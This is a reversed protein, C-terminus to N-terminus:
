GVLQEVHARVQARSMPQTSLTRHMILGEILADVGRASDPALYRHLVERSAAMWDETISRLAPERLAALYLEYTIVWDRTDAGSNGDVLETIADVVEDRSTIGDFHRGYREAMVAAHRRFAHELIDRLGSFYYTLSGLPVDAAHAIVRHSTGAVGHRAIVDLTADIIRDKRDPDHRRSRRVPVSADADAGRAATM